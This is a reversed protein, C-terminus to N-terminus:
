MADDESVGELAARFYRELTGGGSTFNFLDHLDRARFQNYNAEVIVDPALGETMTAAMSLMSLSGLQPNAELYEDANNIALAAASVTTEADVERGSDSGDGSPFDISSSDLREDPM